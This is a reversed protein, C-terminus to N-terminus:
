FPIGKSKSSRRLLKRVRRNEKLATKDPDRLIPTAPTFAKTANAYILADTHERGTYRGFALCQIGSKVFRLVSIGGVNNAPSVIAVHGRRIARNISKYNKM